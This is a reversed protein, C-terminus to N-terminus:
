QLSDSIERARKLSGALVEAFHALLRREQLVKIGAQTTGGPVAIEKLIEEPQKGEQIMKATGIFTQCVIRLAQDYRLGEEAGFKAAADILSAAFAPGSGSLSTVADMTGESVEEIQGLASFLSKGLHVYQSNLGKSFCLASM